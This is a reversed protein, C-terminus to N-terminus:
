DGKKQNQDSILMGTGAGGLKSEELGVVTIGETTGDISCNLSLYEQAPRKSM